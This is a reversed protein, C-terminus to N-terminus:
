RGHNEHYGYKKEAEKRVAIAEDMDSYYGLNKLVGSGIGIRVLWKAKRKDWTVGFVGLGSKSRRMNRHNQTTDVDRLNEIRNDSPNGNIHDIVDSPWDGYCMLWAIRHALRVKMTGCTWKLRIQIYGTKRTTGCVTDAYRANWMHRNWDNSIIDPGVEKWIFIGTEPDYSLRKHAYEYDTLDQISM